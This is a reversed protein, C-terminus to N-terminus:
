RRARVRGCLAEPIRARRLKRDSLNTFVIPKLNLELTVAVADVYGKVNTQFPMLWSDQTALPQRVGDTLSPPPRLM